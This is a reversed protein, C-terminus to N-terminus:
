VFNTLSVVLVMDREQPFAVESTRKAGNASKELAMMEAGEERM